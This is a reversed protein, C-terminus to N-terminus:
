TEVVPHQLIDADSARLDLEDNRAGIRPRSRASFPATRNVQTILAGTGQGSGAELAMLVAHSMCFAACDRKRSRCASPRRRPKPPPSAIPGAATPRIPESPRSLYVATPFTTFRAARAIGFDEDIHNCSMSDIPAHKENFEILAGQLAEVLGDPKRPPRFSLGIPARTSVM